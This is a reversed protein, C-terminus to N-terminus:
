RKVFICHMLVPVLAVFGVMSNLLFPSAEGEVGVLRQLLEIGFPSVVIAVYNMTMVLALATTVKGPSALSATVDYIYPQAMGYGFGAVICGILIFALSGNLSVDLLGFAILLLSVWLVNGKLLALIRNIFLGPTMMALFFIATVLGTVASDHGLKGLLFPLDISVAMVLYTILLYYLM